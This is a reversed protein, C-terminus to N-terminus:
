LVAKKWAEAAKAHKFRETLELMARSVADIQDDHKGDPFGDGELFFAEHWPDNAPGRVVYVQGKEVLPSWIDAYALKNESAVQTRVSWGSLHTRYAEMQDKGAQGPDQWLCIRTGKGDHEGHRKVTDRVKGPSWQGRVMQRIVYRQDRTVGVLAGATYDPDPKESTPETAALDWGRVWAVVKSIIPDDQEVLHFWTRRFHNGAAPRIDWNGGRAEDGLLREREVLNLGLLTARYTPDVKPNDCLRSLIFTFSTVRDEDGGFREVLEERTDAWVVNDGDRAFYRIVGSREPIAYGDKGIWWDVFKRVWSDPDPNCTARLYPRMKAKTRRRSWLYWFQTETFHTLEEFAIWSYQAGMHSLKDNEYQLGAFLVSAGSPFRMERVPSMRPQGGFLGYLSVAEDWLRGAGMMDGAERRFIVGDFDPDDKWRVGDLLTAYTKGGGAAGGFFAMDASTALYAEQPGPNPRIVLPPSM